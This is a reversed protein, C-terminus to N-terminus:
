AAGQLAAGLNSHFTAQEPQLAVARQILEVAQENQGQQHAIVGSLHLADSHTPDSALIQQYAIAARQLDGAQHLALAEGITVTMGDM